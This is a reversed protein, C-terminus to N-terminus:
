GGAREAASPCGPVGTAQEVADRIALTTAEAAMVSVLTPDAPVEGSALCVALDGDYATACPSV